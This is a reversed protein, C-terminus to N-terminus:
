PTSAGIPEEDTFPALWARVRGECEALDTTVGANALMCDDEITDLAWHMQQPIAVQRRVQSLVTVTDKVSRRGDHLDRAIVGLLARLVRPPEAAAALPQLAARMATLDGPPVLVIDTIEHPPAPDAELAEAAWAVVTAGDTIGLLLAARHFTAADRYSTM